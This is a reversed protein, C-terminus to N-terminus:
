PRTHLAAKLWDFLSRIVDRKVNNIEDEKLIDIKGIKDFIEHAAKNINLKM